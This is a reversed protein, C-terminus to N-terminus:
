AHSSDEHTTVTVTHVDILKELQLKIQDIRAVNHVTIVMHSWAKAPPHEVHISRINCSRRAFIHAIRVLVGPADRVELTITYVIDLM